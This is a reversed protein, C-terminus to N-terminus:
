LWVYIQVFYIFYDHLLLCTLACVYIQVFYIFYDHLLLCTLYFLWPATFVNFGFTYRYLAFLITM